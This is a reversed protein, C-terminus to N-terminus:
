PWHFALMLAVGPVISLNALGIVWWPARDERALLVNVGTTL